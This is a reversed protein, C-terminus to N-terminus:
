ESRNVPQVRYVVEAARRRWGGQHSYVIPDIPDLSRSQWANMEDTAADTVSAILSSSIETGYM